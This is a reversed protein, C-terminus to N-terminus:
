TAGVPSLFVNEHLVRLDKPTSLFRKFPRHRTRCSSKLWVKKATFVCVVNWLRNRLLEAIAYKKRRFCVCSTNANIKTPPPPTVPILQLVMTRTHMHLSFVASSVGYGGVRSGKTCQTISQNTWRPHGGVQILWKQGGVRTSSPAPPPNRTKSDEFRPHVRRLQTRPPATIYGHVWTGTGGRFSGTKMTQVGRGRPFSQGSQFATDEHTWSSHYRCHGRTDM